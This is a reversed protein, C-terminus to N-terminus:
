TTKRENRYKLIFGYTYLKGVFTKRKHCLWVIKFLFIGMRLDYLKGVIEGSKM